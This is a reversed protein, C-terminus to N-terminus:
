MSLVAPSSLHISHFDFVAKWEVPNTVHVITKAPEQAELLAVLRQRHIRHYRWISKTLRWTHSLSFEACLKPIEPRPNRGVALQRKLMWACHLARSFDVFIIADAAKFRTRLTDPTGNGDIIWRATCAIGNLVRNLEEVPTHHWGPQWRIGDVHHLPHKLVDALHHSLTTKGGAINGVIAITAASELRQVPGNTLNMRHGHPALLGSRRDCVM